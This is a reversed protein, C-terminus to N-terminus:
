IITRLELTIANIEHMKMEAEAYSVELKGIEGEAPEFMREDISKGFSDQVKADFISRCQQLNNKPQEFM